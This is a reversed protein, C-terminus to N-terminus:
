IFIDPPHLKGFTIKKIVMIMTIWQKKKIRRM